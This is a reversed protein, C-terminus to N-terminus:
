SQAVFEFPLAATENAGTRVKVQVTLPEDVASPELIASVQGAHHFTTVEDLDDIVVVSEATFNQGICYLTLDAAGIFASSPALTSLVADQPPAPAPEYPAIEGGDETYDRFEGDDTNAPNLWWETGNDDTCVVMQVNPGEPPPGYSCSTYAM